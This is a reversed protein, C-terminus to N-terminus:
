RKPYKDKISQIRTQEAELGNEIINEMQKEATGYEDKRKAIQGLNFEYDDAQTELADLQAQTPQAIDLNWEAIYDGEGENKLIVDSKFDIDANVYLKIKNALTGM